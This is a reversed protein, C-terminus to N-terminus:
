PAAEALADSPSADPTFGRWWKEFSAEVEPHGEAVALVFDIVCEDRVVTVTRTRVVRAAEGDAEVLQSYAQGGAFPFSDSEVRNRNAIGVLLQRGLIAPDRESAECTSDVAMYADRNGRYALQADDVDIIRWSWGEIAQPHPLWYGHDHHRFGHGTLGTSACGWGLASTAVISAVLAWAGVARNIGRVM